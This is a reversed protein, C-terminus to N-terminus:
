ERKARDWYTKLLEFPQENLHDHGDAQALKVLANFRKEYKKTSKLLTEYSDLKCFVALSLTAHILDGIEEQLHAADNKEWAEQVEKCESQIQEILQQLNEWYFGFQLSKKELEEVREFLCDKNKM